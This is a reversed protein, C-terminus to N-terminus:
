LLSEYITIYEQAKREWDFSRGREVIKGALGNRGYVALGEALVSQMHAPEFSRFYFAVDGGIEPLSTRDSLFIPRGFQMAEVVPAGFGEALSPLVFAKCNKLYWAKENESVPGLIHLRDSVGLAFAQKKMMEIYDPEDMKGAIILEISPQELLSLLVHFNKKRNVYGMTFLFPMSPRYSNADLAPQGVAHTGNHVVYVPKGGIDCHKLVDAKTFESICVIAHSRNILEQTHTLSKKQEEISKGEHLANLDHITLLVKARSNPPPLIRGSQFPAHWVSCNRLFPKMYRHYKRRVITHGPLKFTHAEQRPVYFRIAAGCHKSLARNVHLGLNLCYYYLGSNRFKMLDCDLIIKHM